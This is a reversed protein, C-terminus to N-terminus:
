IDKSGKNLAHTYIMVTFVDPHGSPEQVALCRIPSQNFPRTRNIKSLM